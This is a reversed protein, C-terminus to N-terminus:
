GPGGRVARGARGPGRGPGAGDPSADWAVSGAAPARVKGRGRRRATGRGGSTGAPAPGPAGGASARRGTSLTRDPRDRGGASDSARHQLRRRGRPPAPRGSCTATGRWGGAGHRREGGGTRGGAAATGMGM